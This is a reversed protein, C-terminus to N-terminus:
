LLHNLIIFWIKSYNNEIYLTRVDKILIIEIYKKVKYLYFM